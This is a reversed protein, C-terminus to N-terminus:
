ASCGVPTFVKFYSPLASMNQYSALKSSVLISNTRASSISPNRVLPGSYSGVVGGTIEINEWACITSSQIAGTGPPEATFTVVTAAAASANNIALRVKTNRAYAFSSASGQHYFSVMSAYASLNGTATLNVTVDQVPADPFPVLAIFANSGNGSTRNANVTFNWDRAGHAVIARRVNTCNINCKSYRGNRNPNIGYYANSITAHIDFGTFTYQSSGSQQSQLFTCVRDAICDVTKFGSCAMTSQVILCIAGRWNVNLDAGFDKFSLGAITVNNPNNFVFINPTTVATTTLTLQAGYASILVNQLDNVTMATGGSFNGLNYVGPAIYLTGGRLSKLHNFAQNFASIIASSSAGPSGGYDSLKVQNAPIPRPTAVSAAAEVRTPALGQESAQGVSSATDVGATSGGGGGCAQLMGAAGAALGGLLLHRRRNDVDHKIGSM